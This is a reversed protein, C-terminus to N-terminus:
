LGFHKRLPMDYEIADAIIYLLDAGIKLDAKLLTILEECEYPHVWVSRQLPYFGLERVLRRVRERMGKKAEPIDFIVIRWRGDWRRPKPIQRAGSAYRQVYVRGKETLRMYRKGNKEEWVIYRKKKLRSTAEAIRRRPDRKTAWDLDVHKLLKLANPAAIGAAIVGTLTVGSLIINEITNRRLRKAAAQEMKGM